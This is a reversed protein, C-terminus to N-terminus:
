CEGQWCTETSSQLPCMRLTQLASKTSAEYHYEIIWLSHKSQAQAGSNKETESHGQTQALTECFRAQGGWEVSVGEALYCAMLRAFKQGSINGAHPWAALKAEVVTDYNVRGGSDSGAPPM